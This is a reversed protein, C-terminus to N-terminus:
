LPISPRWSHGPPWGAGTLAPSSALIPETVHFSCSRAGPRPTPSPPFPNRQPPSGLRCKYMRRPSTAGQPAPAPIAQGPIDGPDGRVYGLCRGGMLEASIAGARQSATPGPPLLLRECRLPACPVWQGTSRRRGRTWGLSTGSLPTHEPTHVSTCQTCPTPMAEVRLLGTHPQHLRLRFLPSLCKTGWSGGATTLSGLRRVSWHQAPGPLTRLAALLCGCM